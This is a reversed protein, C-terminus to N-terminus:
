DENKHEKESVDIVDYLIRFVDNCSLNYTHAIDLFPCKGCNESVDCIDQQKNLFETDIM